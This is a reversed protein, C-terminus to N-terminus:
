NMMSSWSPSSRGAAGRGGCSCGASWSSPRSPRSSVSRSAVNFAIVRVLLGDEPLGPEQLRTSLGLVHVLGFGFIGLTFWRWSKPRGVLGVVGGFLVSLAIVVDVAVANVRWGALAGIILTISHGAVFVSILTAARRLEGALLVTGAIFLLQDWGLLMFPVGYASLAILASM